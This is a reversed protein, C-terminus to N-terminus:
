GFKNTGYNNTGYNNVISNNAFQNTTGDYRFTPMCHQKIQAEHNNLTTSQIIASAPHSRVITDPSYMNSHATNYMNKATICSKTDKQLYNYVYPASGNFLQKDTAPGYGYYQPNYTYNRKM